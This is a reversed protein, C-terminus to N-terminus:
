TAGFASVMIKKGAKHLKERLNVQITSTTSGITNQGGFFQSAKEWVNGVDLGRNNNCSWFALFINNYLNDPQGYGPVGIEGAIGDGYWLAITNVYGITIPYVIKQESPPTVPTSDIPGTGSGPDTPTTPTNPTTPTSPNSGSTSGGTSGQLNTSECSFVVIVIISLVLVRKSM